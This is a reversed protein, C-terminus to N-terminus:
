SNAPSKRFVGSYKRGRSIHVRNLKRGGANGKKIIYRLTKRKEDDLNVIWIKVTM